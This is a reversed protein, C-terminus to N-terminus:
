AEFVAVAKSAGTLYPFDAEHPCVARFEYKVPGPLRFDHTGHFRGHGNTTLAAFTIWGSGSSKAQLLVQKGGMPLPGGLVRGSLSITHGVSTRTPSVRLSVGAHVKLTLAGTAVPRSGITSSYEIAMRRSSLKRPLKFVFRGKAGSRISGMSRQKAGGFSPTYLVQLVANGIPKGSSTTLTGEIEERGGFRAVITSPQANRRKAGRHAGRGHHSGAGRHPSASRGPRAGRGSGGRVWWAVLKASTSANVGNAMGLKSGGAGPGSRGSGSSGSGTSGSSGSTGSGGSSGGSSGNAVDVTRDIVPAEEGAANSVSVLVEHEGDSLATTDLSVHGEVSAPCPKASLFAPHGDSAVEFPKCSGEAEDIVQQQVTKGDVKLTEEYVGSGEDRAHFSVGAEGSLTGATALEGTQGSVTPAGTEELLLDAAYLYVVVAYGLADGPRAECPNDSCSANLYLHSGGLHKKVTVQNQSSLPESTTGVETCGTFVCGDFTDESGFSESVSPNNPTALWFVYGEGGETDGARWLTAGQIAEGNPASFQWTAIDSPTNEVGGPLEVSLAARSPEKSDGCLDGYTGKGKASHSWAGPEGPTVSTAVAVARGAEAGYPVRCAYYHYVGAESPTVAILMTSAMAMAMAIAITGVAAVARARM